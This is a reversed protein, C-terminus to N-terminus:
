TNIHYEATFRHLEGDIMELKTLTLTRPMNNVQDQGGSISECFTVSVVQGIREDEVILPMLGGKQGIEYFMVDETIARDEKEKELTTKM